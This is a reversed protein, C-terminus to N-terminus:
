SEQARRRISALLAQLREYQTRRLIVRVHSKLTEDVIGLKSVIEERSYDSAALVLVETQKQTLKHTEAIERAVRIVPDATTESERLTRAIGRLNASCDGKSVFEAGLSQAKNVLKPTLYGTLIVIRAAPFQNQIEAMVEFGAGGSVQVDEAGGPIDLDVIALRLDIASKIASLGQPVNHALQVDWEHRFHPAIIREAYVPDDEVILVNPPTPQKPGRVLVTKTEM